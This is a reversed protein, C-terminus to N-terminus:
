KFFNQFIKLDFNAFPVEREPHWMQCYIKQSEHIFSEICGDSSKFTCILDDSLNEIAYNHYSNVKERDNFYTSGWFKSVPFIEHKVSVHNTISKLTSNFSEAIFQMGRCVGIIPISNIIAYDLIQKEKKDRQLSLESKDISYLDGGGSLIIGCIEFNDLYEHYNVKTPIIIM